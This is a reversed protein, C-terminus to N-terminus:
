SPDSDSSSPAGPRSSVVADFMSRMEAVDEESAPHHGYLARNFASTAAEVLGTPFMKRLTPRFESATDPAGRRIDNEEAVTLLEYYMRLASVVGSPGDPLGYVRRRKRLRGKLNPVLQSLLNALHSLLEVEERVSERQAQGAPRRMLRQTSRWMLYIALLILFLLLAGFFMNLLSGLTDLQPEAAVADTSTTGTPTPFQFFEAEEGTPEPPEFLTDRMRGIMEILFAIPSLIVLIVGRFLAYLIAAAGLGAAQLLAGVTFLLSEAGRGVPSALLSYWWHPAGFVLGAGTVAAVVTAIAKPWTRAKSSERSEPVLHGINLGALGAAFFVLILPLTSLQAPNTMDILASLGLVVVGAKFSTELLNTPSESGALVIGRWWLLLGTIAVSTATARFTELVPDGLMEAMWFLELQGPVVHYGVALYTAAVGILLSLLYARAASRILVLGLATNAAISLGFIAVVSTWGLPSDTRGIALGVVGLAAYVWSSESLVIAVLLLRRQSM